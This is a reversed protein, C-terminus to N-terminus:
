ATTLRLRTGWPDAAVAELGEDSADYGAARLRRAAAAVDAATPLLVRWELLRADSESPSAAAKGAWTNLGLHHHYGGVSLFLAGPYSWVTRDFGLAGHYFRSAQDLDAVHLHMHGMVTGAALGTWPETGAAALVSETDLPITAMEVQGDAHRWTSRPRDAYVEIGLGDPDRLYIAESVLHDSAGIRTGTHALHGLFRGLAARNPVLLAFHYLGLRGQPAVPQTGSRAELMVLPTEDGTATLTATSATAAHLRLGLVGTYYELSRELDGVRLTV